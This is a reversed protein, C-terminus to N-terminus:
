ETGQEQMRQDKFQPGKAGGANRPKTAVVPRETVASSRVQGERATRQPGGAAATRPKGHKM